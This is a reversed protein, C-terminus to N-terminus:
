EEDFSVWRQSYRNWYGTAKIPEASIEKKKAERKDWWEEWNIESLEQLNTTNISWKWYTNSVQVGTRLETWQGSCAIDGKGNLTAIKGDIHNEWAPDASMLYAALRTDSWPGNDPLLHRSKLDKHIEEWDGWHGNHIMALSTVGTPKCRAQHDVSFPHCLQDSTSGATAFRFHVLRPYARYREILRHLRNIGMKAGKICWVRGDKAFAIGYGDNNTRAMQDCEDLTLSTDSELTVAVCM